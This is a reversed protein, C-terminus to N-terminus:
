ALFRLDWEYIVFLSLFLSSLTLWTLDNSISWFHRNRVYWNFQKLCVYTCFLDSSTTLSLSLDKSFRIEVKWFKQRKIGSRFTANPITMEEFQCEDLKISLAPSAM